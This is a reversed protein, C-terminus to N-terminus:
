QALVHVGFQITANRGNSDSIETLGFEGVPQASTVGAVGLSGGPPARLVAKAAVWLADAAETAARQTDPGALTASVTVEIVYDEAERLNMSASGVTGTVNGVTVVNPETFTVTGRPGYIVQADPLAATFLAVLAAKVAPVTSV